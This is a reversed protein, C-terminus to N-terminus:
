VHFGAARLQTLDDGAFFSSALALIGLSNSGGNPYDLTSPGLDILTQLVTAIEDASWGLNTLYSVELDPLGQTTLYPM